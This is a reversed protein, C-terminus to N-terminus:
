YVLKWTEGEVEYAQSYSLNSSKLRAFSVCVAPRMMKESNLQVQAEGNWNNTCVSSKCSCADLVVGPRKRHCMGSHAPCDIKKTTVTRQQDLDDEERHEKVQLTKATDEEQYHYVYICSFQVPAKSM